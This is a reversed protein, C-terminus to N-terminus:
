QLAAGPFRADEDLRPSVAPQQHEIVWSAQAADIPIERTPTLALIPRDESAPVYWGGAGATEGDLFLGLYDFELRCHLARPLGRVLQGVDRYTGLGKVISDPM